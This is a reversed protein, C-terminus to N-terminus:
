SWDWSDLWGHEQRYKEIIEAVKQKRRECNLICEDSYMCNSGWSIIEGPDQDNFDCDTDPCYEIKYTNVKVKVEGREWLGSSARALPISYAFAKINKNVIDGGKNSKGV